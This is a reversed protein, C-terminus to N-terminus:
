SQMTAEILALRGTSCPMNVFLKGAELGETRRPASPRETQQQRGGKVPFSMMVLVRAHESRNERSANVEATANAWDADAGIPTPSLAEVAARAIFLAADLGSV